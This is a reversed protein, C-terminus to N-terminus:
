SERVCQVGLITLMELLLSANPIAELSFRPSRWRSPTRFAVSGRQSFSVGQIDSWDILKGKYVLGKNALGFKDFDLTGGEELVFQMSPALQVATTKSIIQNAMDSFERVRNTIVLRRGDVLEIRLRGQHRDSSGVPIFLLVYFRTRTTRDLCYVKAVDTWKVAEVESSFRREIAFSDELIFVRQKRRLEYVIYAIGTASILLLGAGAL